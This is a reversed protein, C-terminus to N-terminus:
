TTPYNINDKLDINGSRGTLAVGANNMVIHVKGFAALTADAAAKVSEPKRVDCLISALRESAGGLTQVADALGTANIDAMMVKAGRALLAKTLALGIGSAAGTVFATKSAIDTM